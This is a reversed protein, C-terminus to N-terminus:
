KETEKIKLGILVLAFAIGGFVPKVVAIVFANDFDPLALTVAILLLAVLFPNPKNDSKLPAKRPTKQLLAKM